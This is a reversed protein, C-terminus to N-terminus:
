LLRQSFVNGQAAAKTSARPRVTPRDVWRGEVEVYRPYAPLGRENQQLMSVVYRVATEGILAMQINIGAIGECPGYLSAMCVGLKGPVDYGLEDIWTRIEMAKDSLIVCDIHQERLWKHLSTKTVRHTVLPAARDEEPLLYQESLIAGLVMGMSREFVGYQLILGIRRYGRARLEIMTLRMNFAHHTCVRHVHPRIVSYGFAVTSFHEWEMDPMSSPVPM